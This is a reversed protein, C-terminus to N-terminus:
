QVGSSKWYILKRTSAIPVPPQQTCGMAGCQQGSQDIGGIIVTTQTTTGTVINTVPVTAMVPSPPLGGGVFINSLAGGCAAGSVGITGSGNLLNVWYGRAEGLSNACSGATNPVPRNTSFTVAGAAILASTVVQEDTGYNNLNMFWGKTGQTSLVGATTCSSNASYNNMSDSDDLNNASTATLDDIYVYFRNVVPTTYPYESILPHERDGSGLAVFVMSGNALLAPSFLFKRGAGNTYAVRHMAWSASSAAAYNGGPGSTFDIRYINGGTDAAYANDIYGDSNVDIVAVDAAVSRTTAFSKLLAGTAADLVYVAAGTPSSCSPASTDADECADYGGGVIVVPTAGNNYGKIFAVVPTSWTQGIGSMNATCGTNDTLDPCGVKWLFAPADPNTVDFAYIMRGGRRMSPYIWVQSNNANQYLGISGDFFYDKPTPTPTIGSPMGPYQILPSNALLRPLKSYHEPAVFAWRERGTNADVARLMGDNAGYYVTVGTGYDVPMPRSHVADGHLSPRAETTNGNLNEDNVDQGQIFNVVSASLGSSSTTFGTLSSGSLTYITRNVAWTPTTNTTPPNNGKRIAEAAGGKEVFPGDPSDSFANNTTTACVGKPVPVENVTSWYTGSDTTWFSVACNNPYGTVTSIAPNGAADALEISSGTNLLQYQKLNGKWLPQDNSDPRFMPVFVQNKDQARNTTNVPLAVSAFTSNVGQIEALIKTLATTIAAQSGVQYYKGGGVAAAAKLLYSYAVNDQANYADLVYTVVPRYVVPDSGPVPIGNSYLFHTWEDTWSVMQNTGYLPTLAPAANAIWSQYASNGINAANGQSNNAIYVIYTRGCNASTIPSQYNGTGGIAFGSSLGQGAGTEPQTSGAVDAEPNQSVPGTYPTLGSFYKYLEYLAASEDKSSENIKEAPTNINSYVYGLINNLATKNAAQTMDRAGFRLYGGGTGPTAGNLTDGAYTTLMALGINVPQTSTISSLLAQISAIEAQGQIGGNDPWKQSAKSWNTSNDILFIINPAGASGSTASTYLDLDDARAQASWLALFGCVTVLYKATKYVSM